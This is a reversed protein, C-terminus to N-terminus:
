LACWLQSRRAAPATRILILLAAFRPSVISFSDNCLLLYLTRSHQKKSTSPTFSVTPLRYPKTTRYQVQTTKVAFDKRGYLQHLRRIFSSLRMGYPVLVLSLRGDHRKPMAWESHPQISVHVWGITLVQMMAITLASYVTAYQVYLVKGYRYMRCICTAHLGGRPDRSNCITAPPLFHVTRYTCYTHDHEAALYTRREQPPIPLHPRLKFRLQLTPLKSSILRHM